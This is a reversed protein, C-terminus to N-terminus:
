SRTKLDVGQGPRARPRVGQRELGGREFVVPTIHRHLVFEEESRSHSLSRKVAVAASRPIVIGAEAFGVVAQFNQAIEQEGLVPSAARGQPTVVAHDDVRGDNTAPAPNIKHFVPVRLDQAISRPPERAAIAPRFEVGHREIGLGSFLNPFLHRAVLIAGRNVEGGVLVLHKYGQPRIM